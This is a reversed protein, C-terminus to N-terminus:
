TAEGFPNGESFDIIGDADTEIDLNFAGPDTSITLDSAIVTIDRRSALSDEVIIHDYASSDTLTGTELLFSNSDADIINDTGSTGDTIYSPIIVSATGSEFDILYGEQGAGAMVIRDGESTTEMEINGLTTDTTLFTNYTAPDGTDTTKLSSVTLKNTDESWSSVIGSIVIGPYVMQSVSEGQVYDRLTPTDALTLEVSAAQALEISTDLVDIETDFKEGSYEFLDCTMKFVYLKDIQYFPNEHEVFKIEFLSKSLPFYVLDGENPRLGTVLNADLSVFREWTRRSIVFTAQDRVEVGFKAYLDGEGEFGETGEIYMEVEYADEFSSNAADGLITDENIIKRPLYYCDHGYMRLSEVVLDEILNQESKVAQSFFVNTAM